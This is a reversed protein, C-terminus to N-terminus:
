TAVAPPPPSGPPHLLYTARRRFSSLNAPLRHCVLGASRCAAVLEAPRETGDSVSSHTHLDIPGPPPTLVAGHDAGAREPM